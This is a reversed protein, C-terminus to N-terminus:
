RIELGLKELLAGIFPGNRAPDIFFIYRPKNLSPGM